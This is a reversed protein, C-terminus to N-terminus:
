NSHYSVVFEQRVGNLYEVLGRKVTERVQHANSSRDFDASAIPNILQRFEQEAQTSVVDRLFPCIEDRARRASHSDCIVLCSIVQQEVRLQVLFIAPNARPEDGQLIKITTELRLGARRGKVFMEVALLVGCIVAFAVLAGIRVFEQDWDLFSEDFPATLFFLIVLSVGLMLLAAKFRHKPSLLVLQAEDRWFSWYTRRTRNDM